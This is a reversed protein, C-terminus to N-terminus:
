HNGRHGHASHQPSSSFLLQSCRMHWASANAGLTLSSVVAKNLSTSPSLMLSRSSNWDLGKENSEVKSTREFTFLSLFPNYCLTPHAKDQADSSIPKTSGLFSFSNEKHEDKLHWLTGKHNSGRSSNISWISNAVISINWLLKARASVFFLAIHIHCLEKKKYHRKWQCYHVESFIFMFNHVM